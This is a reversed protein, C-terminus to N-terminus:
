ATLTAQGQRAGRVARYSIGHATSLDQHFTEDSLAHAVDKTIRPRRLAGDDVAQEVIKLEVVDLSQVLPYGHARGAVVRLGAALRAEHVNVHRGPEAVGDAHHVVGELRTSGHDDGRPLLVRPHTEAIGQQPVIQHGHGRRHRLPTDLGLSGVLQGQEEMAREFHRVIRGSTGHEHGQGDVHHLLLRLVLGHRGARQVPRAGCRGGSDGLGCREQSARLAGDDDDPVLHRAESRSGLDHRQGLRQSGRHPGLANAHVGRDWAAM